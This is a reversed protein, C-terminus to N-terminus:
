LLKVCRLYVLYVHKVNHVNKCKFMLFIKMIIIIKLGDKTWNKKREVGVWDAGDNLRVFTNIVM